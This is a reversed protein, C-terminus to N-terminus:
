TIYVTLSNLLPHSIQWGYDLSIFMFVFRVTISQVTRGRAESFIEIDSLQFINPHFVTCSLNVTKRHPKIDPSIPLGKTVRLAAFGPHKQFRSMIFIGISHLDLSFAHIVDCIMSSNNVAKLPLIFISFLCGDNLINFDV